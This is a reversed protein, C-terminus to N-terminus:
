LTPVGVRQSSSPLSNVKVWRNESSRKVMSAVPVGRSPSRKSLMVRVRGSPRWSPPENVTSAVAPPVTSQVERGSAALTSVM